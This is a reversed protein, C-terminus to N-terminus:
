SSATAVSLDLAVMMMGVDPNWHPLLLKEICSARDQSGNADTAARAFFGTQARGMPGAAWGELEVVLVLAVIIFLVAAKVPELPSQSTISPAPFLRSLMSVVVGM